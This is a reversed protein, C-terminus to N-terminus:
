TQGVVDQKVRLSSRNKQGPKSINHSFHVEKITTAEGAYSYILGSGIGFEVLGSFGKVIVIFSM